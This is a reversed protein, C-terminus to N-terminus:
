AAIGPILVDDNAVTSANSICWQPEEIDGWVSATMAHRREAAEDLLNIGSCNFTLEEGLAYFLAAARRVSMNEPDGALIQCVRPLSVGMKAALDARAMKNSQVLRIAMSQIESIAKEEVLLQEYSKYMAAARM